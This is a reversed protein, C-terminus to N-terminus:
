AEAKDSSSDDEIKVYNEKVIQRGRAVALARDPVDKTITSGSGIVADSGVNVPAVFQTDSGVFTRDGIVTKYKQKNAAYNCTITGCGINVDNGIEADGLYTLHGAKSKAGFKTKKMEVFNGVHAGEGIETQPRLRAYPGITAGKSIKVEELYSGARIQVGDEIVSDVIYSNPEISSFSGISTKGRIMVNPYIVAGPAIMVNSEIFTTKADLAIVGEEMLQKIKLQYKRRSAKSLEEQSNVGFAMREDGVFGGVKWGAELSLSVVDTLYYENQANSAQIRSLEEHLLDAKMMYMGTNIENIKLTESSADKAEIIAVLDGGRRVIRGFSGPNKVKATVVMLDLKSKAFEEQMAFLDSAEILPHDGCLILVNGELTDPQAAKVADATGRQQAQVFVQVGFPEVVPKVMTLGYGAVLRINSLNAGHCAEIVHEIMPRGAVPHLVKPLTSKM